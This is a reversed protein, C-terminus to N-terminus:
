TNERFESTELRFRTEDKWWILSHWFKHSRILVPSFAFDNAPVNLSSRISLSHTLTFNSILRFTYACFDMHIVWGLSLSAGSLDLKSVTFHFNPPSDQSFLRVIMRKKISRSCDSEQWRSLSQPFHRFGEKRVSSLKVVKRSMYSSRLYMLLIFDTSHKFVLVQWRGSWGNLTRSSSIIPVFCCSVSKQGVPCCPKWVSNFVM